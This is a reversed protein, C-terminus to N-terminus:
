KIGGFVHIKFSKKKESVANKKILEMQTMVPKGNLCSDLNLGIM